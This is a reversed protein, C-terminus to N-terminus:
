KVFKQIFSVEFSTVASAMLNMRIEREFNEFLNFLSENEVLCFRCIQKESLSMRYSM